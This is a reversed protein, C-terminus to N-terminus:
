LKITPGLRIDMEFETAAMGVQKSYGETPATSTLKGATGLYYRAGVVLGNNIGDLVNNWGQSGLQIKGETVIRGSGGVPITEDWVFGLFSLASIDGSARAITGDVQKIYVPMGKVLMINDTNVKSVLTLNSGDGGGGGDSTPPPPTPGIVIGLAAWAEASSEFVEDEKAIVTGSNDNFNVYYSIKTFATQETQKSVKIETQYVTGYKVGNNVRDIVWVPDEPDFKYVANYIPTSPGPVLGSGTNIYLDSEKAKLTLPSNDLAVLYVLKRGDPATQKKYLKIEVQYCSGEKFGSTKPDFYWVRDNPAYNYGTQYEAM